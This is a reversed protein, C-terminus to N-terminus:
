HNDTYWATWQIYDEVTPPQQGDYQIDSTSNYGSIRELYQAANVVSEVNGKLYFL